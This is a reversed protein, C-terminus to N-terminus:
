KSRYLNKETLIYDIRQDNHDRIVNKIKQGDYAVAVSIFPYGLRRLRIFTRDYFGGGYGLRYGSQDFALCPTLILEPIIEEKNEDPEPIGFRGKKLFTKKDYSRFILYKNNNLIVPLCIKKGISILYNNLQEVSIETKIPMFSAIFKVSKLEKMELINKVLKFSLNKDDKNLNYRRKTCLIRLNKKQKNIM